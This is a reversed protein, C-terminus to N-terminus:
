GLAILAGIAIREPVVADCGEARREMRASM